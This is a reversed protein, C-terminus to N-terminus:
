PHRLASRCAKVTDRVSPPRANTTRMPPDCFPPAGDIPYNAIKGGISQGTKAHAGSMRRESQATKRAQQRSPAKIFDGNAGVIEDRQADVLVQMINEGPAARGLRQSPKPGDGLAGSPYDRVLINAPNALARIDQPCIHPPAQV